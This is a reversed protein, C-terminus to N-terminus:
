KKKLSDHSTILNTSQMELLPVAEGDVSCYSYHLSLLAKISLQRRLNDMMCENEVRELQHVTAHRTTNHLTLTM